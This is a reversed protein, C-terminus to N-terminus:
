PLAGLACCRDGSNAIGGDPKLAITQRDSSSNIVPSNRCECPPSLYVSERSVVAPLQVYMAEVAVIDTRDLNVHWAAEGITRGFGARVNWLRRGTWAGKPLQLGSTLMRCHSASEPATTM